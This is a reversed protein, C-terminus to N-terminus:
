IHSKDPLNASRRKRARRKKDNMKGVSFVHEVLNVFKDRPTDGDMPPFIM